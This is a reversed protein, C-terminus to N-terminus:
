VLLNKVLRLETHTALQGVHVETRREGEGKIEVSIRYSLWDFAKETNEKSVCPKFKATSM